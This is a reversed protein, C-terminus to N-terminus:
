RRPDRLHALVRKSEVLIAKPYTADASRIYRLEPRYSPPVLGRLAALCKSLVAFGKMM